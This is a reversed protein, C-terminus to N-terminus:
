IGAIEVEGDAEGPLTERAVSGRERWEVGWRDCLGKVRELEATMDVFKTGKYEPTGSTARVTKINLYKKFVPTIKRSSMKYNKKGGEDDDSEDLDGMVRNQEDVVMNTALAIDKLYVRLGDEVYDSVPGWAWALILGELVRATFTEYRDGKREETVAQLYEMVMARGEESKMVTMLSMTVQATRPDISRDVSGLDVQQDKEINHMMWTFLANRLRRCEAEYAEVPPLDLPIRPHPQIPMMETTLCRSAIAQDGFDKRMGIIKPGYVEYAEVDFRAASADKEARLIAQGKENGGNLIKAIMTAESSDKFDAEDLVLTSNRYLDLIRMIAAASSGANTMIPQYCLPGMTKLLRSKGTGYDGLARIYAVTRFASAMYTFLPYIMCLQELTRDAGFDFYKQNHAKIALLLEEETRLETMESPLLIVNKRITSNPYLPVFKRGLIEVRELRDEIHGDPFRVAFFTKQLEPAYELGLYHDLVWGGAHQIPEGEDGEKGGKKLKGNLVKLRDNWEGKSIELVDCVLDTYGARTQEDLKVIGQTFFEKIAEQKEGLNEIANIEDAWYLIFPKAATLLEQAKQAQEGAPIKAETWEVLLDNADKPM